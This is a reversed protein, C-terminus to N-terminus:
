KSKYIEIQFDEKRKLSKLVDDDITIEKDKCVFDVYVCTNKQGIRHIRGEIQTRDKFSFGNSYFVMLDMGTLNYGESVAANVLLIFKKEENASDLLSQKNTTAGNLIRSGDLMSHLMNLEHNYRCVVVMKDYLKAYQLLRNSKECSIKKFKKDDYKLTGGCIQHSKTWFVIHSTMRPDNELEKIAKKQDKTFTFDERKYIKPPLDLCDEKKVTSGIKDIIQAMMIPANAHPKHITQSGLRFEYFYRDTYQKWNADRGLLKEYCMINYPTSLYPTGTLLYVCNPMVAHLYKIANKHMESKYGSFFHAEDIIIGDFKWTAYNQWNKRFWEKTIVVFKRPNKAWKKLEREWNETLSKPCVVLTRDANKEALRIATASKGSGVEHALLHYRPGENILKTQHNYLKM